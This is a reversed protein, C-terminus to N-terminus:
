FDAKWFYARGQKWNFVFLLQRDRSRYAQLGAAKAHDGNITGRLLLPWWEIRGPIDCSIGSLSVEESELMERLREADSGAFSFLGWQRHSKTDKATRLEHVGEPLGPPLEGRGEAGSERAEAITAYSNTVVDSYGCAAVLSLTAVFM